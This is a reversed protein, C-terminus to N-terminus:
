NWGNGWNGSFRFLRLSPPVSRMSRVSSVCFSLSLSDKCIGVGRSLSRTSGLESVSVDTKGVGECTVLADTESDLRWCFFGLRPGEGEGNSETANVSWLFFLFEFSFVHRTNTIRSIFIRESETSEFEEEVKVGEEDDDDIDSGEWEERLEASTKIEGVALWNSVVIRSFFAM